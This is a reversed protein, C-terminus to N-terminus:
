SICKEEHFACIGHISCLSIPLLRLRAKLQNVKNIIGKLKTASRFHMAVVTCRKEGIILNFHFNNLFFFLDEFGGKKLTCVMIEM